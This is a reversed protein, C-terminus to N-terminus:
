VKGRPAIKAPSLRAIDSAISNESSREASIPSNVNWFFSHGVPVFLSSHSKSQQKNRTIPNSCDITHIYHTPPYRSKNSYFHPFPKGHRPPPQQRSRTAPFHYIPTVYDSPVVMLLYQTIEIVAPRTPPNKGTAPPAKIDSHFPQHRIAM